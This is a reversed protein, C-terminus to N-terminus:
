FPNRYGDIKVCVSSLLVNGHFILMFQLSFALLAGAKQEKRDQDELNKKWDEPSRM